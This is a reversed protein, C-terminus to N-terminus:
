TIEQWPQEYLYNLHNKLNNINIRKAEQEMTDRHRLTVTEYDPNPEGNLLYKNVTLTDVTLCYYTGIADQRRYRNGISGTEEYAVAFTASKLLECYLQYSKERLSKELPIIAVFYPALFPALKLVERESDEGRSNKITEKQYSDELIALMLREVGFSVEIVQPITGSINFVKKSHQSHQTLDYNGRHSNSCLEGWGFHYNFYFDQTKKAYHPL